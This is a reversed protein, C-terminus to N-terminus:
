VHMLTNMLSDKSIAEQYLRTADEINQQAEALRANALIEKLTQNTEEAM